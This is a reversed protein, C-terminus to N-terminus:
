AMVVGSLQMELSRKIKLDLRLWTAQTPKLNAVKRGRDVSYSSICAQAV